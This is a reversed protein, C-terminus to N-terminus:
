DMYKRDLACDADNYNDYVGWYPTRGGNRHAEYEKRSIVKVYGSGMYNDWILAYYLETEM